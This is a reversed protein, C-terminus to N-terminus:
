ISFNHGPLVNDAINNVLLTLASLDITTSDYWVRLTSVGAGGVDTVGRIVRIARSLEERKEVTWGSCQFDVVPDRGISLDTTPM